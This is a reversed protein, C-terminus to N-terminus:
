KKRRNAEIMEATPFSEYLAAIASEVDMVGHFDIHTPIVVDEVFDDNRNKAHIEGYLRLTGVRRAKHYGLYTIEIKTVRRILAYVQKYDQVGRTRGFRIVGGSDRTKKFWTRFTLHDGILHIQKPRTLVLCVNFCILLTLLSLPVAPDLSQEGAAVMFLFLIALALQLLLSNRYDRSLLYYLRNIKFTM